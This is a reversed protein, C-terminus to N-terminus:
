DPAISAKRRTCFIASLLLTAMRVLESGLLLELLRDGDSVAFITYQMNKCQSHEELRNVQQLCSMRKKKLQSAECYHFVTM